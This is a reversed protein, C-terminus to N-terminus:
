AFELDAAICFHDSPYNWDPLLLKGLKERAPINLVGTCRWVGKTYFIFDITEVVQKGSKKPQDGGKRWKASTFATEKGNYQEYASAIHPASKCLIKFAESSPKANFDCALIVPVGLEKLKAGMTKAHLAKLAADKPKTGSKMHSTVVTFIKKSSKNRLLVRLGVQGSLKGEELGPFTIKETTGLQELKQSNWFIACGDRLGGNYKPPGWVEKDTGTTRYKKNM